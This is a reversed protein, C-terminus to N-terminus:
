GTVLVSLRKYDDGLDGTQAVFSAVCPAGETKCFPSVETEIIGEARM